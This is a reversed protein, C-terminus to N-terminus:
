CKGSDSEGIEDGIMPDLRSVLGELIKESEAAWRRQQDRFRHAAADFNDSTQKDAQFIDFLFSLRNMRGRGSGSGNDNTLSSVASSKQEQQQQSLTEQAEISDYVDDMGLPAGSSVRREKEKDEREDDDEDDDAAEEENDGICDDDGDDNDDDGDFEVLDEEVDGDANEGDNDDADDGTDDGGTDDGGDELVNADELDDGDGNNDDTIDGGIESRMEALTRKRPKNEDKDGTSKRGKGKGVVTKKKGGVGRTSSKATKSVKATKGTSTKKTAKKRTPSAKRNSKSSKDPKSDKKSRVSKSTSFMSPTDKLVLPEECGACDWCGCVAIVFFYLLCLLIYDVFLNFTILM